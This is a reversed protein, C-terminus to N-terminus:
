TGATATRLLRDKRKAGNVLVASTGTLGDLLRDARHLSLTDVNTVPRAQRYETRANRDSRWEATVLTGIGLM